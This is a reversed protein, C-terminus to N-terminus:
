ENTCWPLTKDKLCLELKKLILEQRKLDFEKDKILIDKDIARNATSITAVSGIVAIVVAVLGAIWLKWKEIHLQEHMVEVESDIKTKEAKNKAIESEHLDNM